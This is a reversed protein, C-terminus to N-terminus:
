HLMKTRLCVYIRVFHKGVIQPLEKGPCKVIRFFIDGLKSVHQIVAADVGGADVYAGGAGFVASAKLAHAQHQLRCLAAAFYRRSLHVKVVSNSLFCGACYVVDCPRQM